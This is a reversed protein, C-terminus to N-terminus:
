IGSMNFWIVNPPDFSLGSLELLWEETIDFYHNDVGGELFAFSHNQVCCVFFYYLLSRFRLM